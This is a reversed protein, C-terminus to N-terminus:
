DIARKGDSIVIDEETLTREQKDLTILKEGEKAMRVEIINELKDADYFHLPQGTELM